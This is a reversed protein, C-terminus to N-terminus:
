LLPEFWFHVARKTLKEGGVQKQTGAFIFLLEQVRPKFFKKWYSSPQSTPGLSFSLHLLRDHQNGHGYDHSAIMRIGHEFDFVHQRKWGPRDKRNESESTGPVAYFPKLAGKFRSKIADLTEPEYPLGM